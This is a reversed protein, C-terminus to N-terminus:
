GYYKAQKNLLLDLGMRVRAFKERVIADAYSDGDKANFAVCVVKKHNAIFLARQNHFEQSIITFHDQGFIDRCRLVSDLTRFGANDMFIRNAPVGRAILDARMIAPEDYHDTSKDGSVIVYDIKGAM